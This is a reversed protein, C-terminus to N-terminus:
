QPREIEVPLRGEANVASVGLSAPMEGPRTSVLLIRRSGGPEIGFYADDPLVGPAEIRVGWAFRRSSLVVEVSGDGLTKARGTMGLEAMPKREMTRGAPFRFSQAFPPEGRVSHLSAAVVDHGPPGFRFACAADVFRGLLQELGFTLAGHAPITVSQEAQAVQQEGRRYLAARLWAEVAYPGDNAIHVDIGNLGEDTTWVTSPALARKLFWYAAKPWGAADLIGWGAGPELDAGWLVIGGGCPSEARRWEGFVEAMTEGSVMRSLELYRGQDAYRLALPDAGYLLKLYHDRVDEFDWGAGVDRPVGRKWAPHIPSAGGPAAMAMRDVMEPEPVNAFALCESAFRVGARRADELPRLYAGVGFYNAVGSRTRFPLDGGCPASPVYPVGPCCRAAIRPLDEGFFPGRGMAADLGLMAVQQEIESNGCIVATSPHRGLRSLETEAETCVTDRFGADGYPYDMNAFMMDQWVLLGLEDCLRHFTEDEYVTTGALRILNLGGDRLRRLRERVAAEPAALSVMDVPTWVVGRGFIRTGNVTLALGSDGAPEAGGDISRFGAPVDELLVASGNALELEVRVPYLAPEGHTHPFWRAVDPIRVTARGRWGGASEEWTMPSLRDGALVRGAIPRAGEDLPRLQLDIEILGASGELGVRRSWSEVALERRRLLSVPRWPGVPEPEPAFGPARGLLTTRFWRLQQEAVVRTRWRAPPQRRRQERLAAQLSRCVILVENRERVLRTVEVQHAAFMSNSKLVPEGNFWVEAVTAIGGMQLIVEEGRAAPEADFHCRFWHELADFRVGQGRRWAKQQELASAVTGPVRASVFRLGGLAEPTMTEAASALEWGAALPVTRCVDQRATSLAAIM